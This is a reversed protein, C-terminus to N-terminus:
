EKENYIKVIERKSFRKVDKFVWGGYDSDDEINVVEGKNFYITGLIYKINYENSYECFDLSDLFENYNSDTYKNPLLALRKDISIVGDSEEGSYKEICIYVSASIIKLGRWRAYEILRNKLTETEM